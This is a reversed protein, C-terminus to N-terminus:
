AAARLSRRRAAQEIVTCIRDLSAETLASGSPLCLGERFISEAVQGGRHRCNQFVPQLHLPKWVPRSEINDAALALRLDEPTIGAAATDIRVVSLWRNCTGFSAEPMLTFGPLNGLRGAYHAFNRRRAAVFQDLQELQGRGVAALLNSLRYNFGIQSHQYHPGPDRAQTSLFRAHDILSKDTSALMGGGSTTIIKNGNFSFVSAWARGGVPQGRYTSGLAEAADEIVPIGYHDAIEVIADLDASQGFIDVAVIARPMKGRHACDALEEALLQPDLNWSSEDSDIFVPTAREYLIPNASACFTLTSCLVEDGPKLELHRLALHLAATGSSLAVAYPINVKDSFEHEFADVHPGLPAIWNSDFADCLLERERPSMHPPSLYIPEAAQSETSLPSDAWEDAIEPNADATGRLVAGATQLLIIADLRLSFDRIYELDFEIRKPWTLAAAGQIQALGTIGPKVTARRRQAANMRAYDSGVTPRPGVLSMSGLLVNVLQPLEDIKLKRLFKAGHILRPDNRITVHDTSEAAAGAHMTRLKYIAFPQEHLGVRSQVFLVPGRSVLKIWAAAAILLPAAAILMALALLRDTLSKVFAQTSNM